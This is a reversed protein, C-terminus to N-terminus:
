PEPLVADLFEGFALVTLDPLRERAWRQLGRDNTVLCAGQHRAARAIQEDSRSSESGPAVPVVRLMAMLELLRGRKRADPVARIQTLQVPTIFLAIQGARQRHKLENVVGVPEMLLEDLIMTDLM